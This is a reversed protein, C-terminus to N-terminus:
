QLQFRITVVLPLANTSICPPLSPFPASRKVSNCAARNLSGFPSPAVLNAPQSIAGDRGIAFEVEVDGQQGMRRATEPYLRAREIRDLVQSIYSDMSALSDANVAVPTAPQSLPTADAEPKVFRSLDPAAAALQWNSSLRPKPLPPAGTIETRLVRPRDNDRTDVVRLPEEILEVVEFRVTRAPQIERRLLFDVAGAPVLAALLHCAASFALAPLLFREYQIRRMPM